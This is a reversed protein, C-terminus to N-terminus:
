MGIKAQNLWSTVDTKHQGDPFRELYEEAYSAADEFKKHELLLPIVTAYTQEMIPRLADNAPDLGMLLGMFAVIAQGRTEGAREALNLKKEAEMRRVLVQGSKLRLEADRARAEPPWKTEVLAKGNEDRPTSYNRVMKLADIAENFLRTRLTNDKETKGEESAVDVLLLNADVMQQLR